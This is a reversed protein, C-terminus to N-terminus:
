FSLVRGVDFNEKGEQNGRQNSYVRIGNREFDCCWHTHGFAWLAVTGSRWCPASTLETAFASANSQGAYKPDSTGHITPAHHTFILVKREPEENAIRTVAENLWAVDSLHLASRGSADFKEIRQFDKVSNASLEVPDLFSWLTCGLVTLTPSLDIRTQNLFIFRGSTEAEFARLRAHSKSMTWGYPEHNGAVFLIAKFREVQVRLWDFLAEHATCGTDGLLALCEATKPIEFHYLAKGPREIELHLDSLLQIQM